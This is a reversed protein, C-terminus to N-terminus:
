ATEVNAAGGGGTEAAAKAVKAAEKDQKLYVSYALGGAICVALGFLQVATLPKNFVLYRRM